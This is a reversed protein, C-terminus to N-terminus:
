QRRQGSASPMDLLDLAPSDPYLLAVNRRLWAQRTADLRPIMRRLDADDKPRHPVRSKFLLQV